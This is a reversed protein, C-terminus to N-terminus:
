CSLRRRRLTCNETSENYRVANQVDVNKNYLISRKKWQYEATEM